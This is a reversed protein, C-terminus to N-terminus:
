RLLENMRADAEDISETIGLSNRVVQTIMNNFIIETDLYNVDLFGAAIIASGYIIAGEQTPPVTDLLDKRVPAIPYLVQTGNLIKSSFDPGQLLLATQFAAFQSRSAKVVAIGYMRGFTKKARGGEAQPMMAVDFNISPNARAIEPIESGYGIYQAAQESAFADLAEPMARNWSYSSQLPDSFQTFFTIVYQAIPVSTNPAIDLLHSSYTATSNEVVGSVIPNGAQILLLSIIDKAHRINNFTGLPLGSELIIEKSSMRNLKLSFTAAESWTKPPDLLAVNNYSVRNFYFIMPDLLMPFALIGDPYLFLRAEDVYTDRYIRDSFKEYPIHAFKSEHKILIEHPAFVLDPGQQAAIAESIERDISEPSKESYNLTMQNTQAFESIADIVAERPLTGWMTLAKNNLTPVKSADDGGIKIAGSFLLVAILIFIGFVGMIIYQFNQKM